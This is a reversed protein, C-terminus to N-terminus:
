IPTKEIKNIFLIEIDRIENLPKLRTNILNYFDKISNIKIHLFLDHTGVLAYTSTVGYYKFIRLTIRHISGKKLKLLLVAQVLNKIEHSYRFVFTF